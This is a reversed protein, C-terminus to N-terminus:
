KRRPPAGRDIIEASKPRGTVAQQARQGKALTSTSPEYVAHRRPVCRHRRASHIAVASRDPAAARSTVAIALSASMPSASMAAETPPSAPPIAAEVASASRRPEVVRRNGLACVSSPRVSDRATMYSERRCCTKRRFLFRRASSRSVKDRALALEPRRRPLCMRTTNAVLRPTSKARRRRQRRRGIGVRRQQLRPVVRVVFVVHLGQALDVSGRDVEVTLFQRELFDEARLAL